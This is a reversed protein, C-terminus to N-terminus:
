QTAPEGAGEQAVVLAAAGIVGSRDSVKQPVIPVKRTLLRATRRRVEKRVPGFLAAGAQSIQGGLIVIEPDFAHVLGALGAGLYRVSRDIIGKAVLDGRKAFRFVAECTLAQHDDHFKASMQSELGQHVAAMAEGEIAKACFFTELCGNSGCVCPPGDPDVTIHGLHGAVGGEGRVLQGECIVAGGLGTGLTLMLVNKRGRAAGWAWEGALTVRADNDAYVPVVKRLGERIMRALNQGELFRCEGPVVKITTTESDIIGKCAVGVGAIDRNRVLESVSRKVGRRFLSLSPPTEMTKRATIKGQRNVLGLKIRTGGIDIGLFSMRERANSDTSKSREAMTITQPGCIIM